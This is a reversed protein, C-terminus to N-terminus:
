PDSFMVDPVMLSTVIAGSNGPAKDAMEAKFDRDMMLAIPWVVVVCSVANALIAAPALVM